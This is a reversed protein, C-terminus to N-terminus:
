ISRPQPGHLANLIRIFHRSRNMASAINAPLDQMAYGKNSTSIAQAYDLWVDFMTQIQDIVETSVTISPETALVALASEISFITEDRLKEAVKLAAGGATGGIPTPM